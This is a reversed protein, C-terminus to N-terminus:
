CSQVFDMQPVDLDIPSVKLAFMSGGCRLRLVQKARSDCVYMDSIVYLLKFEPCFSPLLPTLDQLSFAPSSRALEASALLLDDVFCVCPKFRAKWAYLGCCLRYLICEARYRALYRYM